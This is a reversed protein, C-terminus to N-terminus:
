EWSYEFPWSIVDLRVETPDEFGSDPSTAQSAPLIQKSGEIIALYSFRLQDQTQILGMRFHRMDLLVKCVDVNQMSQDKEILVLCTDVLCFTGSRGIGASCHIIPPGANRDLAGSKRVEFLFDLFAQPSQPVDFDPWETYQYQQIVKKEGSRLDCLELNRVTYHTNTVESQFTVKLDVDEFHLDDKGHNANGVPFYQHCKVQGKETVKNLMLIVRSNQEWVMLWFHGSTGPLPGQTLIYSRNAEPAEVLSANIYDIEDRELQIRSHDYPSVDRYRNRSRFEPQKSDKLSFTHKDRAEQRIKQFF